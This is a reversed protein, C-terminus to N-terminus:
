PHTMQRLLENWRGDDLAALDGDRATRSLRQVTAAFPTVPGAFCVPEGRRAIVLTPFNEIEIDLSDLLADHEEIDMWLLRDGDLIAAGGDCIARFDRCTACWEACLCVIDLSM